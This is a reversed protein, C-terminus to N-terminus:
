RNPDHPRPPQDLPGDGGRGQALERLQQAAIPLAATKLGIRMLRRTFPTFLGGGLVYGLGAAAALVAYPNENYYHALPNDERLHTYLQQADDALQRTDDVLRRSNPSSSQQDM